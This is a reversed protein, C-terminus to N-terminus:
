ELALVRIRASNSLLKDVIVTATARPRQQDGSVRLQPRIPAEYPATLGTLGAGDQNLPAPVTSTARAAAYLGKTDRAACVELPTDVWVELFGVGAADHIDRAHQRDENYPSVLAVIPVVGSDALITAIHAARRAQEGRDQRSLGLDCSLGQRLEDGDLVCCPVGIQHLLRETARAITTKGAGPLGTLWITALDTLALGTAAARPTSHRASPPVRRPRRRPEDDPRQSANSEHHKFRFIDLGFAPAYDVSLVEIVNTRQDAEFTAIYLPTGHEADFDFEFHPGGGTTERRPTGAAKIVERGARGGRGTVVLWMTSLLRAPELVVLELMVPLAAGQAVDGASEGEERDWRWWAEGERVATRVVRDGQRIDVRVRDPLECWVQRTGVLPTGHLGGGIPRLRTRGDAERQVVVIDSAEQHSWDRIEVFMAAVDRHATYLLEPLRGFEAV